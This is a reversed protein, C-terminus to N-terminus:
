YGAPAQTGSAVPTTEILTGNPEIVYWLGKYGQGMVDGPKQDGSFNYVPMGNVTLQVASESLFLFGVKATVNPGASVPVTIRPEIVEAPWLAACAGSCTNVGPSDKKFVYLTMGDEGVLINGLGPVNAAQVSYGSGSVASASPLIIPAPRGAAFAGAPLIAAFVGAMLLAKFIKKAQSM